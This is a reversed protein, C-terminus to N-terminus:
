HIKYEMPIDLRWIAVARGDCRGPKFRCRKITDVADRNLSEHVGKTVAAYKVEGDKGVLAAVYVTGERRGRVADPPYVREPRHADRPRCVALRSENDHREAAVSNAM